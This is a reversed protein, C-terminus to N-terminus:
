RAANRSHRIKEALRNPRLNAYRKLMRPDTHGTISAIETDNLETTEFLRSTAEHRIDHLSLDECGAADYASIMRHSILNSLKKLADPDIDGDWWPFLRGGKGAELCRRQLIEEMRDTMIPVQRKQGNKTEDLNVSRGAFSIQDETLTVMERLRMCSDLALHHLDLRACGEPLALPRQRGEPKGGSLVHDIRAEEGEELRRDREVDVKGQAGSRGLVALDDRTYISYGRPLRRLPHSLLGAINKNAGWDCCRALAGVYKRITGPALNRERKMSTVWAEAWDYNLKVLPLGGDHLLIYGLLLDDDSKVAVASLYARIAAGLTAVKERSETVLDPPVIGKDLLAEIRACVQDGEAETDFTMSVPNPLLPKRKIVFEWTGNARQRKSAM